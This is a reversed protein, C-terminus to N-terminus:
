QPSNSLAPAMILTSSVNSHEKWTLQRNNNKGPQPNNPKHLRHKNYIGLNQFGSLLLGFVRIASHINSSWNCRGALGLLLVVLHTSFFPFSIPFSIQTNIDLRVLLGVKKERKETPKEKGKTHIEDDHGVKCRKAVEQDAGIHCPPRSSHHPSPLQESQDVM